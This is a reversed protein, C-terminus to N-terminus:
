VAEGRNQLNAFADRAEKLYSLSGFVVVVDDEGAAGLASSVAASINECPIAVINKAKLCDALVSAPLGRPNPPTVAYVVDGPSFMIDAMTPYDKDSLVGMVYHIRKGPFDADLSERLRRMAPENHGGDLYVDPHSAIKEYRGPWSTTKIGEAVTDATIAPYKPRLIELVKLACSLNVRQFTGHLGSVIRKGSNLFAAAGDEGADARSIIKGADIDSIAEDAVHLQAGLEGCKARIVEMVEGKQPASVVPCGPKIIGAKAAAIEALSSGLFRMHDMGITTLVSVLPHTIINTADTAGGMGVEMIVPNCGEGYFWLFAAATEVEFRTPHFLGREVMRACAAKVETFVEALRERGVPVGGIRFEEEYSFVDPTNFWGVKYGSAALVSSLYAGVSGKGDTGAIHIVSLREQVNGLEDMLARISDLGLRSGYKKTNELFSMAEKYDM